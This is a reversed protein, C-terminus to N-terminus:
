KFKCSFGFNWDLFCFLLVLRLSLNQKVKFEPIEFYHLDAVDNSLLKDKLYSNLIQRDQSIFEKTQQHSERHKLPLSIMWFIDTIEKDNM